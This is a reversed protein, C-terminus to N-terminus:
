QVFTVVVFTASFMHAFLAAVDPPLAVLEGVRVEAGRAPLNFIWGDAGYVWYVVPAYVLLSWVPVFVMWASFKMRDAVAGSILAPTIAAFTMLFAFTALGEADHIGAMGM